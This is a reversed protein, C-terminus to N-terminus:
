VPCGYGFQQRGGDARALSAVPRLRVGATRRPRGEDVGVRDAVQHVGCPSQYGAV